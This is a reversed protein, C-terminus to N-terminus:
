IHELTSRVIGQLFVADNSFVWDVGRGLERFLCNSSAAYGTGACKGQKKLRRVMTNRMMTFHACFGGWASDQVQHFIKQPWHYAIPVMAEPPIHTVPYLIEPHLALLHYDIIPRLPSLIDELIKNQTDPERWRERKIEIMLHCRGGFVTIVEALTPVAPAIARLQKFTLNDLHQDNRFLRALNPDHSIVPVLDRTWRLDMEFGWVGAQAAKDFAAMTNELVAVNDHEGRHSVLRCQRLSEAPPTEAPWHDFVVDTAKLYAVELMPFISSM